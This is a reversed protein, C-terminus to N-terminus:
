VLIFFGILYQYLTYRQEFLFNGNYDTVKERGGERKRILSCGFADLLEEKGLQCDAYKNVTTRWVSRRQTIRKMKKYSNRSVDGITQKMYM